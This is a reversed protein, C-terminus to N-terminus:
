CDFNGRPSIMSPHIYQLVHHSGLSRRVKFCHAPCHSALCRVFHSLLTSKCLTARSFSRSSGRLPRMHSTGLTCGVDKMLVSLLLMPPPSLQPPLATPPRLPQPPPPRTTPPLTTSPLLCRSPQPCLPDFIRPPHLNATSLIVPQTDSSESLKNAARPNFNISTVLPSSSPYSPARSVPPNNVPFRSSRSLSKGQSSPDLHPGVPSFPSLALFLFSSGQQHSLQKPVDAEPMSSSVQTEARPGSGSSGRQWM